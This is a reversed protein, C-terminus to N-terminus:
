MEVRTLNNIKIAPRALQIHYGRRSQKRTEVIDEVEIDRRPTLPLRLSVEKDFYPFM